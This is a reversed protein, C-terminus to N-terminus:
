GRAVEKSLEPGTWRILHNDIKILGAGKLIGLIKDYGEMTVSGILMAYLEGSTLQRAERVAEAIAAVMQFGAVLEKNTTAM